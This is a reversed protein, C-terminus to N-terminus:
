QTAEEEEEKKGDEIRQLRDLVTNNKGGNGFLTGKIKSVDQCIIQFDKVMGKSPNWPNDSGFLGEHVEKMQTSLDTVLKDRQRLAENKEDETKKKAAEEDKKKDGRRGMAATVIGVVVGAVVLTLIPYVVVTTVDGYGFLLLLVVM